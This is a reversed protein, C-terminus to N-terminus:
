RPTPTIAGDPLRSIAGALLAAGLLALNDRGFLGGGTAVNDPLTQVAAIRLDCVDEGNITVFQNPKLRVVCGDQFRIEAEGSSGAVFRAGNFVPTDPQVTAVNAGLSMTVLGKVEAVKGVQAATPAAAPTQARVAVCCTAVALFALASHRM